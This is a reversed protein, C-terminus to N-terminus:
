SYYVLLGELGKSYLFFHTDNRQYSMPTVSHLVSVAVAYGCM